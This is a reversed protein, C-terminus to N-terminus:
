DEMTPVNSILSTTNKQLFHLYKETLGLLLKTESETMDNWTAHEAQLIPEIKKATLDKGAETLFIHKERGKGHELRLMNAKELKKIASNITQKSTLAIECVDKQLCGDGLFCVTYYIDMESVSLNQQFAIKQYLMDIQKYLNNYKRISQGHNM